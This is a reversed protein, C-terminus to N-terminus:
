SDWLAYPYMATHTLKRKFLNITDDGVVYMEKYGEVRGGSTEFPQGLSTETLQGNYKPILETQKGMRFKAEDMNRMLTIGGDRIIQNNFAMANIAYQERNLAEIV